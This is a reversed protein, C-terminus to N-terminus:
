LYPKWKDLITKLKLYEGYREGLALDCKHSPKFDEMAPGCKTELDIGAVAALEEKTEVVLSELSPPLALADLDKIATQATLGITVERTYCSLRDAM